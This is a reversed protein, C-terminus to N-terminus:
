FITIWNLSIALSLLLILAILSAIGAWRYNRAALYAAIQALLTIGPTALLLVIGINLLALPNLAMLERPLSDLPIVVSAAGVGGPAGLVLWWILGALMAGLSAYM